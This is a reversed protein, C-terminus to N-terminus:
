LRRKVPKKKATKKVPRDEQWTWVTNGIPYLKKPGDPTKMVRGKYEIYNLEGPPLTYDYERFEDNSLNYKMRYDKSSSKNYQKMVSMGTTKSFYPCSWGNWDTNTAIYAPFPGIDACYVYGKKLRIAM